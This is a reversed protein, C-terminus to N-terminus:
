RLLFQLSRLGGCVVPNARDSVQAVPSMSAMHSNPSAVERLNRLPSPEGRARTRPSQHCTDIIISLNARSRGCVRDPKSSPKSSPDFESGPSVQASEVSLGGTQIPPAVPNALPAAPQPPSLPLFSISTVRCGQGPDLPTSVARKRLIFMGCHCVIQCTAFPPFIFRGLAVPQCSHSPGFLSPATTAEEVASCFLPIICM